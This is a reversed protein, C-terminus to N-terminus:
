NNYNEGDWPNGPPLYITGMSLVGVIGQELPETPLYSLTASLLHFIYDSDGNVCEM